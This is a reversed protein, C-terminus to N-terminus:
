HLTKMGQRGLIEDGSEDTEVPVEQVSTVVTASGPPDVTFM